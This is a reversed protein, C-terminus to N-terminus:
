AMMLRCWTNVKHLQSKTTADAKIATWMECATKGKIVGTLHPSVTSLMVHQALYEKQEYDEMRREKADIENDTAPTGPKTVPV